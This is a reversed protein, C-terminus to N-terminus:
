ARGLRHTLWRKAEYVDSFAGAEIGLRQSLDLLQPKLLRAKELVADDRFIEKAPGDALIRGGAMVVTRPQLPWIFEIDHSV